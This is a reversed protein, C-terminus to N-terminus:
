ISPSSVKEQKRSPLFRRPRSKVVAKPRGLMRIERSSIDLVDTSLGQCDLYKELYKVSSRVM